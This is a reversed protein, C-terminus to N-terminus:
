TKALCRHIADEIHSPVQALTSLRPPRRAIHAHLVDANSGLFPPRGALMEYFIVGASYLDSRADVDPRGASQERSMSSTSGIVAGVATLATPAENVRTVVKKVLGFDVLKVQGEGVFINEPKLDRHVLGLAHAAAVAALLGRAMALTDPVSLRGRDRLVD